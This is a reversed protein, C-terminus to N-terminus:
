QFHLLALVTNEGHATREEKQSRRGLSRAFLEGPTLGPALYLHLRSHSSPASALGEALPTEAFDGKLLRDIEQNLKEQESKGALPLSVSFATQIRPCRDILEDIVAPSDTVLVRPGDPDQAMLRSWASLRQETMHVGADERPKKSKKAQRAQGTMTKLLEQEMSEFSVLDATLERNQRDYEQALCLFVRAQFLPDPQAEGKEAPAKGKLEARIRSTADPDHYPITDKYLKFFGSPDPGHMAAWNRYDVLLRALKEEDGAVPTRIEILENQAMQQLVEPVQHRNPQYVVPPGVSVTLARATTENIDTFPFYLPNM